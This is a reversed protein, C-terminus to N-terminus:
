VLMDALHQRLLLVDKMDVSKDVNCDAGASLTSVTDEALAKRLALVDKLNRANDGNADGSMAAPIVEDTDLLHCEINHTKAYEEAYSGSYCFISVDAFQSFTHEGIKKVTNPIYVEKIRREFFMLYDGLNPVGNLFLVTGNSFANTVRTDFCDPVTTIDNEFDIMYDTDSVWRFTEFAKKEDVNVALSHSCGVQHMASCMCEVSWIFLSTTDPDPCTFLNMEPHYTVYDFVDGSSWDLKTVKENQAAKAIDSLTLKLIMFHTGPYITQIQEEGFGLEAFLDRALVECVDQYLYSVVDASLMVMDTKSREEQKYWEDVLTVVGDAFRELGANVVVERVADSSVAEGEDYAKEALKRIARAVEDATKYPITKFYVCVSLVADETSEDITEQLLPTIKPKKANEADVWENLEIWAATDADEESLGQEEGLAIWKTKVEDWKAMYEEYTFASAGIAFTSCLLCVTLLISIWKKM